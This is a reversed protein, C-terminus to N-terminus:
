LFNYFSYLSYFIFYLIFYFFVKSFFYFFTYGPEIQKNLNLFKLSLKIIEVILLIFYEYIFNNNSNKGWYKKNETEPFLQYCLPTYYIYRPIIFFNLFVDWDNINVENLNLIYDRTKKSYIIAHSGVSLLLINNNFDFPTQLVPICGLYYLFYENKHGKLFKNINKRHNIQKIKKDFIFDDELILINEYNNNKAHKFCNLYAHTLDLPPSNIYDNKYCNKYGKNLCIYVINTLHYESLQKEILDYRGNGELNIIYTADVNELLSDNYIIKKFTYCNDMCYYNIKIQM